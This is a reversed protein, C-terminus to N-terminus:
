TGGWIKRVAWGLTVFSIGAIILFLVTELAVIGAFQNGGCLATVGAVLWLQFRGFPSASMGALHRAQAALSGPTFGATQLIQAIRGDSALFVSDSHIFNADGNQLSTIGFQDLLTAIDHPQGTLVSISDPNMHFRRAYNAIVLPSDYMPDITILFLHFRSSDLQKQMEVFKAAILPCEDRCRTFIFSTLSVGHFAALDVLQGRQDVLRTHPLKSGIDLAIVKGSQPVGPVFPGALAADYLRWPRASRDVFADIGAGASLIVQPEIRYARTASPLMGTVAENRVIATNKSTVALVTGHIPIVPLTAARSITSAVAALVLFIILPM